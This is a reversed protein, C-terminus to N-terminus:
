VGDRLAPGGAAGDVVDAAGPLPIIV